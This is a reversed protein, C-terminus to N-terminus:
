KLKLLYNILSRMFLFGTVCWGLGAMTQLIPYDILWRISFSLLILLVASSIINKM